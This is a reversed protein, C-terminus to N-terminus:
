FNYYPIEPNYFRTIKVPDGREKNYNKVVILASSPSALYLTMSRAVIRVVYEM